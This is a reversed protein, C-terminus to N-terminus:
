YINKNENERRKIYLTPRLPYRLFISGFGIGECGMDYLKQIDCYEWVSCGIIPIETKLKLKRILEWNYKQAKKGSVAGDGYKSLPSCTDFVYRWPVSNISIAEIYKEVKPFLEELNNACSIKLIVPINTNDKISKLLLDVPFKDFNCLDLANPCSINLEIGVINKTHLELMNAMYIAEEDDKPYISVIGNFNTNEKAWPILGHNSLGISNVVGDEILKVTDWPKWWRFNGKRKQLTLTKTIPTLLNTDFLGIYKLPKEWIYGKGDFGLAGSAAVYEFTYKNSLSIM